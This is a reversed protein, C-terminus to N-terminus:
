GEPRSGFLLKQYKRLGIADDVLVLANTVWIKRPSEVDTALM